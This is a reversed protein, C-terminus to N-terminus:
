CRSSIVTVGDRSLERYVTNIRVLPETAFSMKRPRRGNWRGCWSSSSQVQIKYVWCECLIRKKFNSM